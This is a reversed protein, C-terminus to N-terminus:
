QALKVQALAEKHGVFPLLLVYTVEPLLEPLKKAKGAAVYDAVLLHGRGFALLADARAGKGGKGVEWQEKLANVAQDRHNAVISPELVPAEIMALRAYAPRAALLELVAGVAKRIAEPRSDANSQAELAAERLEGVFDEVAVDFCERKNAFHKYFTARSISARGVVDAITTASFSKEVCSHAMAALIRQRQSRSGIDRPVSPTLVGPRGSAAFEDRM